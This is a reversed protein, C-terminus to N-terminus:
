HKKVFGGTPYSSDSLIGCAGCVKMKPPGGKCGNGDLPTTDEFCTGAKASTADIRIVACIRRDVNGM